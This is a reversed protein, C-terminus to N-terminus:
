CDTQQIQRGYAVIYWPARMIYLGITMVLVFITIGVGIGQTKTQIGILKVFIIALYILYALMFVDVAVLFGSFAYLFSYYIVPFNHGNSVGIILIAVMITRLAFLSNFIFLYAIVRRKEQRTQKDLQSVSQAKLAIYIMKMRFLILYYFEYMVVDFM